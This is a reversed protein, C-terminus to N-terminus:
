RAERARRARITDLYPRLNEPAPFLRFSLELTDREGDQTHLFFTTQGALKILSDGVSMDKGQKHGLILKPTSASTFDYAATTDHTAAAPTISGAPKFTTHYRVERYPTRVVQKDIETVAGRFAVQKFNKESFSDRLEKQGMHKALLEDPTPRKELAFFIVTCAAIGALIIPILEKVKM